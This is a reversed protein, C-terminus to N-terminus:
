KCSVHKTFIVYDYAVVSKHIKKKRILFSMGRHLFIKIVIMLQNAYLIGFETRGGLKILSQEHCTNVALLKHASLFNFDEDLFLSCQFIIVLKQLKYTYMYILYEICPSFKLDYPISHYMFSQM